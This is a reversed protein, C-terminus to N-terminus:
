REGAKVLGFVCGSLRDANHILTGKCEPCVAWQSRLHHAICESADCGRQGCWICMGAFTLRPPRLEQGRALDVGAGLEGYGIEAVDIARGALDSLVDLMVALTRPTPRNVGTLYRAINTHNCGVSVGRDRVSADRMRKALGKNSIGLEAMVASLLQNHRDQEASLPRPALTSDFVSSM